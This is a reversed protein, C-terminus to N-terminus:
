AIAAQQSTNGSDPYVKVREFSADNATAFRIRLRRGMAKPWITKKVNVTRGVLAAHRSRFRSWLQSEVATWGESTAFRRRKCLGM